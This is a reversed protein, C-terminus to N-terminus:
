TAGLADLEDRNAWLWDITEQLALEPDPEVVGLVDRLRRDSCLVPYAAQWPHDAASFSVRVPEWEWGLLEAVRGALGAYTWDYPDVVNCAWFGDPAHELAAVIARGVREVAVRHWIQAGGDPLDLRRVGQHILRVLFWERATRHPGYIAGPRLAVVNGAQHLAAEMAVNDHRASGGPYPARRLPATEDLPVGQRPFPVIGSGDALGADVGHQYVDMSSVAIIRQAGSRTACDRTAAAREATAGGHFTDILADPRWREIPGNAALLGDRDGHLHRVDGLDPHEHAGSHAVAVEHGAQALLGVAVPGVFNTGGVFVVRVGADQCVITPGDPARV